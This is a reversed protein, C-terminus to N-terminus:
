SFEGEVLDWTGLGHAVCGYGITHRVLRNPGPAASNKALWEPSAARGWGERETITKYLDMFEMIQGYEDIIMQGPDMLRLSWDGLDFIGIEPHIRLAFCWGFSSKGIHIAEKRWSRPDREYTSKDVLYFITGM